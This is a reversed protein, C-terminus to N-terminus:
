RRLKLQTGVMMCYQAVFVLVFMSGIVVPGYRDEYGGPSRKVVLLTRKAFQVLSYTCIIISVALFVLSTYTQFDTGSSGAYSTPTGSLSSLGVAAGTVWVSVNMWKLFTRENGLFLKQNIKKVDEDNIKKRKSPDGFILALAKSVPTQISTRSQRQQKQSRVSLTVDGRTSENKLLSMGKQLNRNVAKPEYDGKPGGLEDTNKSKEITTRVSGSMSRRLEPDLQQQVFYFQGSSQAKRHGPPGSGKKRKGGGSM